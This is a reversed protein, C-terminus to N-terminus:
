DDDDPEQLLADIPRGERLHQEVIRDADELRVRHYVVGEPYVAVNPGKACMGLCRSASIRIGLERRDPLLEKFRKALAM